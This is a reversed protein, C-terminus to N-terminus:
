GTYPHTPTTGSPSLLDFGDPVRLRDHGAGPRDPRGYQWVITKTRPDILAVRDRYDDTVALLGGPFREALSPHDLMGPGSAPHYSWLIHGARDFEFVGGPRAYDAVLYRNPGLRQPDSPYAIPLHTSWVLRGGRTFEDVYSGNVESVLVHGNALPTDGNPSGLTRPPDHTCSGTTGIQSNRRGPGLFLVRCNQADAVTVTGDRLLYADDPEHFYGPSSGIIGPHGLSRILHGSPYGLEVIAENEEENAIIGRGHDIFFADDPFYFGGKPAPKSGPYRWLVRKRANVVLLRNNGRDAILLRGQFPPDAATSAPRDVPGSAASALQESRIAIVSSLPAGGPGVGGVLYGIHGLTAAAANAVPAPLRGAPAARGASPDLRLMRASPGGRAMGGLVYIQGGLSIASAHALPRPLHGIVSARGTSVDIAQIADTLRGSAAEGGLAYIVNGAAAVAPYRVPVPLRAAITFSRGDSTQLVAPSPTQGDYGGVVYIRGGVTAAALDSRPAPLRGVVRGGGAGVVRVANTSASTGGGLVFASKGLTAGAADHLPQPLAGATSLRGTRPDLSFVGSASQSAADLGGLVLLRDRNPALAESSVPAPLPARLKRAVLKSGPQTTAADTTAGAPSGASHRGGSGLARWSAGAAIVLLASAGLAVLRRRRIVAQRSLPLRDRSRPSAVGPLM